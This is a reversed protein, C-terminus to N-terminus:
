GGHRAQTPREEVFSRGPHKPTPGAARRQLAELLEAYRTEIAERRLKQNATLLGAEHTLPEELLHAARIRRYHPLSRNLEDLAEEVHEQTLGAGSVLAVLAPAGHGFVVVHEAGPLRELLAQELPEPPVNHGSALVLVHRSRGVLRWTRTREDFEARDGTRFWGAEDFAAATAEPREWYGPFVGPGRVRLEGDEALRAETGEVLRGVHGPVAEGPEDMTLIGTTETLGYVQYVPIGLMEFWRQTGEALPASGSILCRLSGGLGERVKAYLLRDAVRRLLRDWPGLSEGRREKEWIARARRHLAAVLPGREALRREVGGRVRELLVPVNLVYHPRAAQMEQALRELASCLHIPVGGYLSVWLVLRSGAFCFPLYHFLREDSPRGGMLRDLKRRVLPLMYDFGAATLRVGKPDGSTGSTYVLTVTEEPAPLRPPEQVPPETHEFLDALPHLPPDGERHAARLGDLQAAGGLLLAADCDRAAWLVEEPTSRTYLPVSIAGEFLLALDLAVWRASNPAVFAVRDGPRVAHARLAARASAVLHGLREPHFAHSREGEMEVVLPRANARQLNSHFTEVFSM